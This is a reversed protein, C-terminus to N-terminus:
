TTQFSLLQNGTITLFYEWALTSGTNFSHNTNSFSQKNKSGFALRSVCTNIMIDSCCFGGTQRFARGGALKNNCQSLFRDIVAHNLELGSQSLYWMHIFSNLTPLTMRIKPWKCSRALSLNKIKPRRSPPFCSWDSHAKPRSVGSHFFALVSLLSIIGYHDM